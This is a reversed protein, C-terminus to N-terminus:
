PHSFRTSLALWPPHNYLPLLPDSIKNYAMLNFTAKKPYAPRLQVSEARCGSRPLYPVHYKYFIILFDLDHGYGNEEYHKSSM